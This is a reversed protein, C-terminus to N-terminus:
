ENYHNGVIKINTSGINSFMAAQNAGGLWNDYVIGDSALSNEDLFAGESGVVNHAYLVEVAAASHKIAHKGAGLAMFRCGIVRPYFPVIGGTDGEMIIAATGYDGFVGDFECNIIHNLAGGITRISCALNGNWLPFRCNEISVFGGEFGGGEECDILLAEESVDSAAFGLGILRCQALVKVASLGTASSNYTTFNEGGVYAPTGFDQAIITVGPVDITVTATVSETGKMRIIVDGNNATCLSLAQALTAVAKTKSSGDNTDSGDSPDLYFVNGVRGLDIPGRASLTGEIIVDDFLQPQRNKQTM